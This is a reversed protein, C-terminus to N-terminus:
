LNNRDRWWIVPNQKIYNTIAFYSKEDLIIHDYFSRQWQFQPFGNRHISKSSTTKFAGVIESLPKIKTKKNTIHNITTDANPTPVPRSRDRCSLLSSDIQVIGHVHNPMVVFEHLIIYPYQEALWNWQQLVISGFRNVCMKANWVGGLHKLRHKVCITIFYLGNSSYDYGRLRNNKRHHLKQKIIIM